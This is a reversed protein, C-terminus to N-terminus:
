CRRCACRRWWQHNSATRMDQDVRRRCHVRCSSSLSTCRHALNTTLNPM